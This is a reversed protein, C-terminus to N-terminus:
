WSDGTTFIILLWVSALMIKIGDEGKVLTGTFFSLMAIIGVVVKFIEM